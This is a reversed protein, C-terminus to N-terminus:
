QRDSLVKFQARAALVPEFLWEWVKRREQLVDAELAMGPKLPLRQGFAEVSQRDLQVAVRFLPEQSGSLSGLQQAINSPLESNAFPTASVSTVRGMHLGFKQYPFAAYRLYVTQGPLVFGATRSAAFLYAELPRESNSAPVLTALTQGAQVPQAPKIEIATVVGRIPASVIAVNRAQNETGEQSLSSSSRELQALEARLQTKTSQLEGFLSQRDQYLTLRSRRLGQIRAKADILEEQKTQAQAESVFGEKVLQHYREVSKSALEVRQSQLQIEDDAQRMQSELTTIRARLVLNREQAQVERMARELGLSRQRAMIQDSILVSTEGQPTRRDANLVLLVDGAEVLQGEEVRREAVLSTHPATISVSGLTPVVLGTLKVKRNVEGWIGFAVLLAAAALAFGTILSASLPRCLRVTGLWQASHAQQVEDRFLQM